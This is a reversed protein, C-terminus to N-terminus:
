CKTGHPWPVCLKIKKSTPTPSRVRKHKICPLHVIRHHMVAGEMWGLCRVFLVGFSHHGHGAKPDLASIGSPGVWGGLDEDHSSTSTVSHQHHHIMALM